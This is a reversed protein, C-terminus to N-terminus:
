AHAVVEGVEISEVTVIDAPPPEVEDAVQRAAEESEFVVMSTGENGGINAWYGAVFGPAQSVGPVIQEKLFAEAQERDHITVRFVVAHMPAEGDSSTPVVTHSESYAYPAIRRKPLLEEVIEYSGDLLTEEVHPEIQPSSRQSSEATRPL